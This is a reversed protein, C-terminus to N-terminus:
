EIRVMLQVGAYVGAVMAIGFVWGSLSLAHVGSLLTGITCGLSILSGFGLLIGGVWALILRLPGYKRPQFQGAVLGGILAAAVLGLVFLANPSLTHATEVPNCGRLTDLGPLTDPIWGFRNGALRALRGWEATVGLPTARLYVATALAGVGVGGVVGPWREIFVARALGALTRPIPPHAPEPKARLWIILALVGLVAVQLLLAGTYGWSKPLWIVPSDIMTRLYFLPWARFGLIVGGMAGLLALPSLVSGEGLRYFHASLCSGSLAMGLGFAVGGIVLHWGVPAIHARPPLFGADPYPVWAGYIITYGLMGVALATLLALVGDAKRETFWDALNCLFCFRSRQLVYGFVAGSILAWSGARGYDEHNHLYFGAVVLAVLVLLAIGWRLLHRRSPIVAATPITTPDLM